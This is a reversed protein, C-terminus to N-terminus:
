KLYDIIIDQYCKSCLYGYMPLYVLNIQGKNCCSCNM